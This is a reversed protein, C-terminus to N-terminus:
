AWMILSDTGRAIAEKGYKVFGRSGAIFDYRCRGIDDDDELICTPLKEIEDHCIAAHWLM